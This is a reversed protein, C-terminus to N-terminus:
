SKLMKLIMDQILETYNLIANNVRSDMVESFVALFNYNITPIHKEYYERM